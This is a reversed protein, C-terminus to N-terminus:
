LKRSICIEGKRLVTMWEVEGHLYPTLKLTREGSLTTVAAHRSKGKKTHLGSFLIGTVGALFGARSMKGNVLEKEM